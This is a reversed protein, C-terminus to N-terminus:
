IPTALAEAWRIVFNIYLGQEELSSLLSGTTTETILPNRSIFNTNKDSSTNTIIELVYVALSIPSRQIEM